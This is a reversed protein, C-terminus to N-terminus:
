QCAGDRRRRYTLAVDGSKGYCYRACAALTMNLPVVQDNCLIEVEDEPLLTPEDGDHAHGGPLGSSLSSSLSTRTQTRQLGNPSGPGTQAGASQFRQRQKWSELELREAVYHCAKRMRLMRTASLRANRPFIHLPNSTYELNCFHNMTIRSCMALIYFEGARCLQFVRKSQGM